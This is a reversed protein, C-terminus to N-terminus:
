QNRILSIINLHKAFVNRVTM